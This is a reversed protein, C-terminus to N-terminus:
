GRARLRIRAVREHEGFEGAGIAVIMPRDRAVAVEAFRDLHEGPGM